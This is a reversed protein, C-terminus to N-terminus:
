RPAETESRQTTSTHDRARQLDNKFAILMLLFLLALGTMSAYERVRVSLPRRTIGEVLFFLLHGGDLIPIPLLNILGLNVSIFAMLTLYNVAGERAAEGTKQFILIPGGLSEVTLRGQLLRLASTYVLDVMEATSEWAREAAFLVRSPNEVGPDVRLPVWNGVGVSFIDYRLGQETVGRQHELILEETHLEDGRRFTLQHARGRGAELDMMFTAWLRIPEGDLAVLRDGPLLGAHHEPSGVKVHAIYLDAPEIGVRLRPDGRGPVPVITAMHPEYVEMEVLGGLAAELRSPRLYTVPILARTQMVDRLDIWREIPAGGASIITDFTRMGAAAAAGEADTIGVVATPHHPMIGIRGVDEVRELERVRHTLVPTVVERVEEGERMVRLELPRGPSASVIRQVGYFTSVPEGDIAFIRDGPLLRGEAPRDPFVTGVVSARMLGGDGLFMLFFLLIPFLLNMAPGASVIILRKWLAQAPFSRSADSTRIEDHPDEGLMKVYGGLPIAAVVYETEGVRLGFLRPGFGLSFKLVKVRFLKAWTFHGLEHVFILVGVLVVFYLLDM